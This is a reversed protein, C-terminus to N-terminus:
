GRGAESPVVFATCEAIGPHDLLLREIEAPAINVGRRRIVDKKRDVFWYWGDADHRVLDGTWVWGDRTKEESAAENGRYYTVLLKGGLSLTPRVLLEGVEGRAVDNGDDDVVRAETEPSPRGISGAPGDGPNMLTAGAGDISSYVEVVDVGFRREFEEWISAPMAAGIITRVSHERDSARPPQNMLVRAMTGAHIGM